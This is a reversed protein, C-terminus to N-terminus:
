GQLPHSHGNLLSYRESNRKFDMALNFTLAEPVAWSDVQVSHDIVLHVPVRTDVNGPNIGREKLADRMAALDVVLPVGTYDQLLVRYPMFAIEKGINGEVRSDEYCGRGLM